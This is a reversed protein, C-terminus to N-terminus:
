RRVKGPVKLKTTTTSYGPATITLLVSIAKGKVAVFAKGQIRLRPNHAKAILKAGAFWQYAVKAQPSWAGPSVTLIGYRKVKGTVKPKKTTKLVGKAVVSAASTASTSAHGAKSAAVRVQLAKGADVPRPTYSSSTAGAVPSGAVLWQYSM